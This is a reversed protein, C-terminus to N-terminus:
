VEIRTRGTLLSDMMGDSFRRLKAIELRADNVAVSLSNNMDLIRQQEAISPVRVTLNLVIDASIKVMSESTGSARAQIQRRCDDSRLLLELFEPLVKDGVRLRMMLDPYICPYGIDAYRGIMGVLDRTNARGILLDGDTLVARGVAPDDGPAYKLQTASFGNVTLCGLGLMYTGSFGNGAKPSYGNKPRGNLLEGVRFSTWGVREGSGASFVGALLGRGMAEMKALHRGASRISEGVADLAEVIRKQEGLPPVLVDQDLYDSYKLNIIGTTQQQLQWISPQRYVHSLCYALYKPVVAPGPRLTRFFNSVSYRWGDHPDCFFAVRGVPKGPGGGSSELLLDGTKLQKEHLDRSAFLRLAGSTYDLHGDDDLNTSRLVKVNEPKAAPEVGWAGAFEEELLAHLPSVTWRDPISRGQVLRSRSAM